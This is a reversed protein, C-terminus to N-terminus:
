TQPGPMMIDKSGPLETSRTKALNIRDSDCPRRNLFDNDRKKRMEDPTLNNGESENRTRHEWRDIVAAEEVKKEAVIKEIRSFLRVNSPLRLFSKVNDSAEIGGYIAVKPITEGFEAELDKDGILIDMYVGPVSDRIPNEKHNMM